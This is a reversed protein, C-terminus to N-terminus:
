MEYYYYNPQVYEFNDTKKLEDVIEEVSKDDKISITAINLDPITDKIELNKASL